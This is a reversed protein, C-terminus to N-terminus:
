KKVRKASCVYIDVEINRRYDMAAEVEALVEDVTQGTQCYRYGPLTGSGDMETGDMRFQPVGEWRWDPCLLGGCVKVGDRPGFQGLFEESLFCYRAGPVKIVVAPNGAMEEIIKGFDVERGDSVAVSTKTIRM